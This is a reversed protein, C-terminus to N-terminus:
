KTKVVKFTKSVKQNDTVKLFYTSPALNAMSITTKIDILRESLLLKGMMDYLQYILNENDSFEIELM